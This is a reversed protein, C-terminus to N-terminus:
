AAIRLACASSVAPAAIPVLCEHSAHWRQGDVEIAYGVGFSEHVGLGEVVDCSRNLLEPAAPADVILCMTGVALRRFPFVNYPTPAAAISREAHTRHTM